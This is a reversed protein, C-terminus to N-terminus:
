GTKQVGADPAPRDDAVVPPIVGIVLDAVVIILLLSKLSKMLM